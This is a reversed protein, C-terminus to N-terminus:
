VISAHMAYLFSVVNDEIMQFINLVLLIRTYVRAGFSDKVVIHPLNSVRVPLLGDRHLEEDTVPFSTLM